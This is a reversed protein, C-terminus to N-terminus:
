PVTLSLVLKTLIETLVLGGIFVWPLRAGRLGSATRFGVVLLYIQSGLGALAALLIVALAPSMATRSSTHVAVLGLPLAILVAPGRAFGVVGLVDVFRVHRAAVRAVAWLILATLPFAVLQDLLAVRLPVPVSVTHVDLAGDFRVQFRSVFVGLAAVVVGLATTVEGGYRAFPDRWLSRRPEITAPPRVAELLRAADAEDLARDQAIKKIREEASTV